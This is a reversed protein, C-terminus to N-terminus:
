YPYVKIDCIIYESPMQSIKFMMLFANSMMLCYEELVVIVSLLALM